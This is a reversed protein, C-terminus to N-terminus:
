DEVTLELVLEGNKLRCDTVSILYEDRYTEIAVEATYWSLLDGCGQGAKAMLGFGGNYFDYLLDYAGEVTRSPTVGIEYGQGSPLGIAHACRGLDAETYGDPIPYDGVSRGYWRYTQQNERFVLGCRKAARRLAEIDRIAAKQTTVHSM